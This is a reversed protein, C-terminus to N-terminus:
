CFTFMWGKMNNEICTYLWIQNTNCSSNPTQQQDSKDSNSDNPKATALPSFCHNDLYMHM